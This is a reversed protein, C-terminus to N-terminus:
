ESRLVSAPDVRQARRAPIWSAMTTTAILLLALGIYTGPDGPRIEYLMNGAFRALAYAGGVGIAIGAVALWLGNVVILRRIDHSEAGLAMRIGIEHFRQTTAYSVVGYVGLTMLLLGMVAFAGLFWTVLRYVLINREIVEELMRIGSAPLDRDVSWIQTRIAAAMSTPDADARVLLTMHSWPEQNESLYFEPGAEDALSHNRTDRVVGIITIRPSFLVRFRRGIPDEGPWYRRAMAQNIVAAPAPQPENIRAPQRQQPFWRILPLAVRADADRFVRGRTIGIGLTRFYDTTVGRYSAYPEQGPPPDPRGDIAINIGSIGSGHPVSNTAAVSRVMPLSALRALVANCFEHQRAATGYRSEPLALDVAVVNSADFGTNVHTLRHLSQLFLGAGAAIVMTLAVEAIVLTRRLRHRATRALGKSGNKLRDTVEVRAIQALPILGFILGTAVSAAAAFALVRGDIHAMDLRPVDPPALKTAFGILWHALLVGAAGGAIALVGGEALLQRAIRGCSAGLAVRVAIEQQRAAARALLLNAVNCCGILLVLAVAGFLVILSRQVGFVLESHLPQVNVGHGKNLQPQEAELSAAIGDMEAQAQALTVGDRLRAVVYMYHRGRYLHFPEAIPTWIDPAAGGAGPPFQFDPPMIGLVTFPEGNVAIPRGVISRDSGFRDRWLRESIIAVRGNGPRDEDPNFVRGEIPAVGMVPFFDSTVRAGVLSAPDGAGTLNFDRDFVIAAMREFAHSRAKWEPFEHAGVTNRPDEPGRREWVAVLREPRAFPFPRLLVANVVSFAATTAGISLAMLAIVFFALAPARTLMRWAQRLDYGLSGFPMGRVEEHLPDSSSRERLVSRWLDFMLGVRFMVRGRLTAAAARRREIFLAVMEDEFRQRFQRPYLRLLRRYLWESLTM